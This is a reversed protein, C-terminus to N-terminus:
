RPGDILTFFEPEDTEVNKRMWRLWTPRMRLLAFHVGDPEPVRPPLFKMPANRMYLSALKPSRIIMHTHRQIEADDTVEEVAGYMQVTRVEDENAVSVALLPNEAINRFKVSDRRTIFFFTFVDDVIFYVFALEPKGDKSATSVAAMTNQRLFGLALETERNIIAQDM